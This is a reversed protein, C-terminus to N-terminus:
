KLLFTTWEENILHLLCFVFCLLFLFGAVIYILYFRRKVFNKRNSNKNIENNENIQINLFPNIKNEIDEVITRANNFYKGVKDIVVCAVIVLGTGCISGVLIIIARFKSSLFSVDSILVVVISSIIVSIWWTFHKQGEWLTQRHSNLRIQYTRHYQIYENLEKEPKIEKLMLHEIREENTDCKKEISDMKKKLRKKCM